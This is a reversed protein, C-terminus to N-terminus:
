QAVRARNSASFMMQGSLFHEFADPKCWVRAILGEPSTLAKPPQAFPYWFSAETSRCASSDKQPQWTFNSLYRWPGLEGVWEGSVCTFTAATQRPGDWQLGDQLRAFMRSTENCTVSIQSAPSFLQPSPIKKLGSAAFPSSIDIYQCRTCPGDQKGLLLQLADCADYQEQFLCKPINSPTFSLMSRRKAEQWCKQPSAIRCYSANEPPIGYLENVIQLGVDQVYNCSQFLTCTESTKGFLYFQCEPESACAKQCGEVDMHLFHAVSAQPDQATKRSEWSRQLSSCARSWPLRKVRAM